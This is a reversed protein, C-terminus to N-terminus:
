PTAPPNPITECWNSYRKRGVGLLVLPILGSLLVLAMILKMFAPTIVPPYPTYTNQQMLELFRANPGPLFMTLGNILGFVYIGVAFFFAKYTRRFLAIGIVSSALGWVAIFIRGPITPLLVGLFLVPTKVLFVMPLALLGGLLLGAVTWVALPRPESSPMSTSQFEEGIKRRVLFLSISLFLACWFLYFVGVGIRVGNMSHEDLGPTSPFPMLLIFVAGILFFFATIFNFVITVYRCWTWRRILGIGNVIGFGCLLLMFVLGIIAFIRPDPQGAVPSPYSGAPMAFIALVAFADVALFLASLLIVLVGVLTLGLSRKM